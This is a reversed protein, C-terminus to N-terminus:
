QFILYEFIPSVCTRDMAALRIFYIFQDAEFVTLDRDSMNYYPLNSKFPRFSARILKIEFDSRWMHLVFCPLVLNVCMIKRCHLCSRLWVNWQHCKVHLCSLFLHLTMLSTLSPIIAYCCVFLFWERLSTIWDCSLIYQKRPITPRCISAFLCM